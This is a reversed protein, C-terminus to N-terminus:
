RARSPPPPGDVRMELLIASYGKGHGDPMLACTVGGDLANHVLFNLAALRPLEYREAPGLGFRGLHQLVRETTVHEVIWPYDASDYCALGINVTAGKDGARAHCVDRLMTVMLTEANQGANKRYVM